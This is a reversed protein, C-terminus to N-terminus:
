SKRKKTAAKSLTKSDLIIHAAEVLYADDTKIKDQNEAEKEIDAKVKEEMEEYNKYPTEKKSKRRDNVLTLRTKEDDLLEKERDKKNLSLEKIDHSKEYNMKKKFYQFDPNNVTRKSSLIQLKPTIFTLEYFPKKGIIAPAISDWKMSNDSASEGVLSKDYIPPFHIDPIVGRNQTSEGSVRYFKSETIKLRGHSLPTLSQVTGKGFSDSGLVLGRQYDQIAGAFIESASASMRNVLVVIPGDYYPSFYPKQELHVRNDSSKIQVSPGKDIFLGTLENAERLSGGGNNRLDIIIGEAGENILASLLKATDRTTSKYNPDRLRLAEFDIYFTPIDLVGIKHNIGKQDKINLMAKKVAQEELKVEDRTIKIEKRTNEDASKAPIVELRVLTNKEGRILDVVQDLRWGIIDVIEGDKGQAVGVIKDSPKLEGKKAAPGGPILRVVETYDDKMRLLAGIGQLKLSMSINFNESLNPSMYNTHPDYLETFTNMYIQFVDESNLQHMRDLQSKYRKTLTKVIEANKKKDLQMSLVASKLRKRWIDDRQKASEPHKASTRDILLYEDQTFTMSSIKREIGHLQNELLGNLTKRYQNFIDFGPQLNAAILDNRMNKLYKEKIKTIDSALFVQHNADIANLYNDLFKAALKDDINLKEYHKNKLLKIIEINAKKQAKTSALPVNIDAKKDAASSKLSPQQPETKTVVPNGAHSALAFFLLFFTLTTTIFKYNSSKM